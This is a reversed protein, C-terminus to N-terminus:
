IMTRWRFGPFQSSRMVPLWAKLTFPVEAAVSKVLSATGGFALPASFTTGALSVALAVMLRATKVMM